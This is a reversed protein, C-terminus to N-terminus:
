GAFASQVSDLLGDLHKLTREDTIRGETIMNQAGPISIEPLAVVHSLTGTLIAKLHQQARVGGTFAMSASVIGVVKGKFVSNYAPRSAWDIANKLVGPVSYNYEPTAIILADADAVAKKFAIVSPPGDGVDLDANYHPLNSIEALVMEVEASCRGQMV